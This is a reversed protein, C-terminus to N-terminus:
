SGATASSRRAALGRRTLRVAVTIVLAATAAGTIVLTIKGYVTSRIFLQTPPGYRHGKPTLLRVEVPFVGSTKAAAQVDVATQQHAPVAVAVRGNNSLSLRQNAAVQVIVNVPTASDNAITVPVKGGHSTLTIFSGPHSAIHVQNMAATLEDSLAALRSSAVHQQGRWASSLAQQAAATYGLTQPDGSPLVAAFDGIRTLLSTVRKLYNASLETDRASAPYTLGSRQVKTYIPGNRVTQLGVPEIWPVKGTDALLQAAYGPSPDWRQPPSLVLDRQDSPAEAQIMLTEALFEQLSVRSGYPNDVGSVVDANLGTDAVLTPMQGADTTVVTRASPTEAPQGGIVPIVSDSLVVATDGSARLADVTRQDALGGIPLGYTLSRVAGLDRSVIARGTTTAVGISTELGAHVAAAVDPAAYPLPLVSANRQTAAARAQALWTRAASTGTGPTTATSGGGGLTGGGVMVQYKGTMARVDDLLLPDVAWTVPVDSTTARNAFTRQTQANLGAALLGQLRGGSSLEPALADDFWTGVADRHPQDVLPWIWAVRDPYGVYAAHSPAWPLFTRLQGVTVTGLTSTGTVAVGLERVQWSGTPLALRALTSPDLRLALRFPEEAGPALSPRTAPMPDTASFLASLDGEPDAAYADFESRSGLPSGLRLQLALDAVPQDSVNRLTGSVVLTDGPQPAVPNLTSLDVEIPSASNTIAAGAPAADLAATLPGLALAILVVPAALALRRRRRVTNMPATNMFAPNMSPPNM